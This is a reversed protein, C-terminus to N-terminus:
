LPFEYQGPYEATVSAHLKSINDRKNYSDFLVRRMIDKGVLFAYFDEGNDM